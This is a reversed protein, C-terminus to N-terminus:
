AIQSTRTIPLGDLYPCSPSTEILATPPRASVVALRSAAPSSRPRHAQPPAIRAPEIVLLPLSEVSVDLRTGHLVVLVALAGLLPALTERPHNLRRAILVPMSAAALGIPVAAAVDIPPHWRLVLVAAMVLAALAVAGLAALLGAIGPLAAKLLAALGCYFALTMAAHGSPLSGTTWHAGFVELETGGILTKLAFTVIVCAAFSAIWLAAERRRGGLALAACIILTAPALLAVDGFDIIFRWFQVDAM